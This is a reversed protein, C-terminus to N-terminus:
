DRRGRSLGALVDVSPFPSSNALRRVSYLAAWLVVEVHYEVVEFKVAVAEVSGKAAAKAVAALATAFAASELLLQRHLVSRPLPPDELVCRSSALHPAKM